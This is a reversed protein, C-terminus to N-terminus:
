FSLVYSANGDANLSTGSPLLDDIASECEPNADSFLSSKAWHETLFFVAPNADSYFRLFVRRVVEDGNCFIAFVVHTNYARPVAAGNCYRYVPAPFEYAWVTQYSAGFIGATSDVDSWDIPDVWALLYDGSFSPWNGGACGTPNNKFALSLLAEGFQDYYTGVEPCDTCPLDDCPCSPCEVIQGGSIIPRGDRQWPTM